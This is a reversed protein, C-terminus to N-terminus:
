VRVGYVTINTGAPINEATFCALEMKRITSDSSLKTLICGNVPKGYYESSTKGLDCGLSVFTGNGLGKNYVGIHTKGTENLSLNIKSVVSYVSSNHTYVSIMGTGAGADVLVICERLNLSKGDSSNAITIKKVPTEVTAEAILPLNEIGMRDRAAVQEDATWAPGKGDCMAIRVATDIHLGMLPRGSYRDRIQSETLGFLDLRNKNNIGIGYTIPPLAVVGLKDTGAVPIDAVGDQVITNGDIQVDQVTGGGDDAWEVVFSGDPNTSRVKLIQGATPQATPKDLKNGVDKKVEELNITANQAAENAKTAAENANEAALNANRTSEDAANKSTTAETAATTAAQTAAKAEGSATTAAQTAAKAENAAMGAADLVPNIREVARGYVTDEFQQEETPTFYDEGKVPTKGNFEGAELKRRLEESIANAGAAATNAEDAKTNANQSATDAKKAAAEASELVPTIEASAQAYVEDKFQTGEAETFYDVGKVPTKGNFEGAALKRNLEASIDNASKTAAKADNVASEVAGASNTAAQAAAKAEAAADTAKKAEATASQAATKAEGSATDAKGAATNALAAAANADNTASQASGIVGDVLGVATKVEDVAKRVEALAASMQKNIEVLGVYDVNDEFIYDTPKKRQEVPISITYVTKASGPKQQYYMYIEIPLSETLLVNPIDAVLAGDVNKATVVLAEYSRRNCFHFVPDGSYTAGRVSVSQGVDWQTLHDIVRGDSDYCVIELM